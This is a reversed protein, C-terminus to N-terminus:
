KAYGVHPLAPTLLCLSLPSSRTPLFESMLAAVERRLSTSKHIFLVPFLFRIHCELSQLYDHNHKKTTLRLHYAILFLKVHM